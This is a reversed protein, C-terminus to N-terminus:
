VLNGVVMRMLASVIELVKTDSSQISPIGIIFIKSLISNFAAGFNWYIEMVQVCVYKGFSKLLM